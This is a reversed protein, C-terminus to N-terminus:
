SAASVNVARQVTKNGDETTVTLTTSGAKVGKVSVTSGSVSATAISSDATAASITKDTADSPAVAATTTATDGVKVALAATSDLSVGTVPVSGSQDNGSNGSSAGNAPAATNNDWNSIVAMGSASDYYKVIWGTSVGDTGVSGDTTSAKVEDGINMPSTPKVWMDGKRVVTLPQQDPITIQGAELVNFMYYNLVREVIGLVQSSNSGSATAQGTPNDGSFVFNGVTVTGQSFPNGATYVMPNSTARDGVVAPAYYLNVQTQLTM